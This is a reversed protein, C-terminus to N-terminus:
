TANAQDSAQYAHLSPYNNSFGSTQFAVLGTQLVKVAQMSLYATKNDLESGATQAPQAHHGKGISNSGSVLLALWAYKSSPRFRSTRTSPQVAALKAPSEKDLEASLLVELDDSADAEDM